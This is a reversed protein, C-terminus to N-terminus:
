FLNNQLVAFAKAIATAAQFLRGADAHRLACRAIQATSFPQLRM